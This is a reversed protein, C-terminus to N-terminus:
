PCTNQGAAHTCHTTANGGADAADRALNVHEARCCIQLQTFPQCATMCASKDAYTNMFPALPKCVAIFTTCYNDCSLGLAPGATGCTTLGGDGADM